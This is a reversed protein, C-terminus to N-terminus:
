DQIDSRSPLDRHRIGYAQGVNEGEEHHLAPAGRRDDAPLTGPWTQVLKGYDWRMQFDHYADDRFGGHMRRRLHHAGAM